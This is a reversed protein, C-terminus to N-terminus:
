RTQLRALRDHRALLAAAEDDRGLRRAVAAARVFFRADRSALAIAADLREAAATADGERLARDAHALQFWPYRLQLSALRARHEAAQAEDGLAQLTNALLGHAATSRPDLVLAHRLVAEAAQHQGNRSYLLGLNSWVFPLSPASAVAAAYHRWAAALDGAALYESALNNYFHGLATADSMPRGRSPDLGAEPLFDLVYDGRALAITANVHRSSILLGDRTDWQEGADYDQFSADLGLERAMVVFVLSLSLCNGARQAFTGAASLTALADYQVRTDQAEGLLFALARLAHEDRVVADVGLLGHEILFGRMAPSPAFVEAPSPPAPATSVAEGATGSLPVLLTEVPPAARLGACGALLTVSALVALLPAVVRTPTPRARGNMGGM